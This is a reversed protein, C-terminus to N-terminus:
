QANIDEVDVTLAVKIVKGNKILTVEASDADLDMCSKALANACNLVM